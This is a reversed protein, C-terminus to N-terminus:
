SFMRKEDHIHIDMKKGPMEALEDVPIACWKAFDKKSIVYETM